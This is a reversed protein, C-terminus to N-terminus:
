KGRFCAHVLSAIHPSVQVEVEILRSLEVGIGGIARYVKAFADQQNKESQPHRLGRACVQHNYGANAVYAMLTKFGATHSRCSTAIRLIHCM